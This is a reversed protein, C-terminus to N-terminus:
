TKSQGKFGNFVATLEYVQTRTLDNNFKKLSQHADYIATSLTM